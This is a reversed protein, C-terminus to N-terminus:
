SYPVDLQPLDLFNDEFDQQLESDFLRIQVKQANQLQNWGM